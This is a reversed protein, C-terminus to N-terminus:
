TEWGLRNVSGTVQVLKSTQHLANQEIPPHPADRNFIGAKPMSSLSCASHVVTTTLTITRCRFLCQGGQASTLVLVNLALAQVHEAGSFVHSPLSSTQQTGTLESKQVKTHQQLLM